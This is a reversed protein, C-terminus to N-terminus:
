SFIALNNQLLLIKLLKKIVESKDGISFEKVRWKCLSFNGEVLSTKPWAQNFQDLTEPSSTLFIFLKCINPCVSLCVPSLQDSAKLAPSTYIPIRYVILYFMNTMQTVSQSLLYFIDIQLAPLDFVVLTISYIQLCTFKVKWFHDWNCITM